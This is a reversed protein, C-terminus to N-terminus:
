ASPKHAAVALSYLGVGEVDGSRMSRQAAVDTFGAAKVLDLYELEPLAGYACGPWLAPDSRVSMPLAGETVMDSISLRGGPKLVRYAEEFVKGKDECLNIVCNSLVVDVTNDDVPMAEAQGLRFDVQSLGANQASRRAREIMSPTMDLGIVKGSAGVRRAAYFADIGAGSGIDLVVEGPKLSAMATPNGCGLSFAAAEAPVEALQESSYGTNFVLVDKSEVLKVEAMSNAPSCCSQASTAKSSCSCEGGAAVAGYSEQVAERAGSVRRSGTAVFVSIQAAAGPEAQSSACCSQSTCDVITNVLGAERLWAKIQGREFGLWQDAMERRMWENTHQDLDTIVLRGGPKLVRAMEKLAVLPDPTHHLYMNAFVVDMSGDALPLAAGDAHEFSLNEHRSLNRRAVDLMESSGDLVYVKSVLPALGATMFGTGAGVDAVVMEPRLYAKAIAADRVAESFYGSRLQDWNTAQQAFYDSAAKTMSM